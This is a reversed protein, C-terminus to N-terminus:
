SNCIEVWEWDIFAQLPWFPLTCLCQPRPTQWPMYPRHISTREGYDLFPNALTLLVGWLSKGLPWTTLIGCKCHLPCPNSEQSPFWSGVHWATHGFFKFIKYFCDILSIRNCFGNGATDHLTILVEGIVRSSLHYEQSHLSAGTQLQSTQWCLGSWWFSLPPPAPDMRLFPHARRGRPKQLLCRSLEELLSCPPLAPAGHPGNQLGGM